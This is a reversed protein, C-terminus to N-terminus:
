LSLSKKTLYKGKNLNQELQTAWRCNEKYYGKSNDIRDIFNNIPREGMDHLFNEFTHWEECVTIGLAGYYIYNDVNPNYCRNLMNRWSSYTPSIYSRTKHGHKIKHLNTVGCGCSKSHGTKLNGAQVNVEEGCECKCKWISKKNIRGIFEIPTLKGFKMGTLNELRPM